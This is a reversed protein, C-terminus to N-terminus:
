MDAVFLSLERKVPVTASVEHQFSIYSNDAYSMANDELNSM